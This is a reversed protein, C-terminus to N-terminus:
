GRAEAESESEGESEGLSTTTSGTCAAQGLGGGVSNIFCALDGARQISGVFEHVCTQILHTHTLFEFLTSGLLLFM